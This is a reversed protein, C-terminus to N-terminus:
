AYFFTRPEPDLLQVQARGAYRFSRHPVPRRACAVQFAGVRYELRYRRLWIGQAQLGTDRGVTRSRRRGTTSFTFAGYDIPLLSAATQISNRSFPVFMLGADLAFADHLKLEGYLTRCLSPLVSTRAAPGRRASIRRM